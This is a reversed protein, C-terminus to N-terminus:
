HAPIRTDPFGRQEQLYAPLQRIRCPFHQINRSLLRQLLDLYPSVPDPFDVIIEQQQTFCIQIKHLLRYATHLRVRHHYVGYLSHVTLLHRGRRSAHRLYPFGCINEQLQGLPQVHRNENYPMHRFLSRHGAGPYQLM